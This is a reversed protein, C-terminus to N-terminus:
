APGGEGPSGAGAPEFWLVEEEEPALRSIYEYYRPSQIIEGTAVIALTWCAGFRKLSLTTKM